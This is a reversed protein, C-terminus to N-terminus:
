TEEMRQNNEAMQAREANRIRLEPMECTQLKEVDHLRQM